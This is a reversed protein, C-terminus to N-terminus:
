FQFYLFETPAASLARMLVFFRGEDRDHGLKSLDVVLRNDDDTFIADKTQLAAVVEDLRPDKLFKSERDFVDYRIGLRALVALQGQLCRETVAYFRAATEPDGQEMKALLEYGAAAFAEDTEARANAEVYKDLMDDFTMRALDDCVLVLLAIQKGMDNVYYHVTVEYDEFRSLRVLSDGVMANRARGVHPSANPNISTHEILLKQKAGSHDSGFTPGADLIAAVADRTFQGRNLKFNVYPGAPSVSRVEPGFSVEKAIAAAFAPPALELKRAAVFTRLAVDGVEIKPAPGFPLDDPTLEPWRRLIPAALESYPNM